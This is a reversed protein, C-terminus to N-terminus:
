YDRQTGRFTRRYETEGKDNRVCLLNTPYGIGSNHQYEARNEDDDTKDVMALDLVMAMNKELRKKIILEVNRVHQTKM